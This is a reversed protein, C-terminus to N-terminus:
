DGQDQTQGLDLAQTTQRLLSSPKSPVDVKNILPGEGSLNLNLKPDTLLKVMEEHLLPDKILGLIRRARIANMGAALLNGKGVDMGARAIHAGATARSFDDDEVSREETQSGGTIKQRADFADTKRQVTDKFKQAEQPDDFLMSWRQDDSDSNAIKKAKDATRGAKSMQDRKAEAAGLRYFEKDNPSLTDFESKIQTNTDGSKFHWRGSNLADMSSSPGSWADRAAKYDPNLRDVENVFEERFESMAEGSADLKGTDEMRHAMIYKDMGQKAAALSQMTPVAGINPEGNDSYGTISYDKDHWPTLNPQRGESAADRIEKANRAISRRKEDLLASRMNAVVSPDNLYQQILPSWVAGPNSATGDAQAKELTNIMDDHNSQADQLQSRADALNNEAAKRDSITRGNEPASYATQTPAPGIEDFVSQANDLAGQKDALDSKAADLNDAFTKTFPEVSDSSMAKQWLPRGTNSRDEALAKATTYSSGQGVKGIENDLAAQTEDVRQDLFKNLITRATGPIRNLTGAMGRVNKGGQDLLTVDDGTEQGASQANALDQPILQDDTAKDNVKGIAKNTRKADKSATLAAKTQDIIDTIGKAGGAMGEPGIGLMINDLTKDAEEKPDVHELTTKSFPNWWQDKKVAVDAHPLHAMATGITGHLLGTLPSLGAELADVPTRVLANMQEGRQRWSTRGSPVDASMTDVDKGLNSTANDWTKSIDDGISTMPLSGQDTPAVTPHNDPIIQSVDVSPMNVPHNDPLLNSVDLDAM